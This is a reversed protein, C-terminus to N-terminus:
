ALGILVIQETTVQRNAFRRHIDNAHALEHPDRYGPAAVDQGAYDQIPHGEAFIRKKGAATVVLM